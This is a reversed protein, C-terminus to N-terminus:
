NLAAEFADCREAHGKPCITAGTHFTKVYDQGDAHYRVTVGSLTGIGTEVSPVTVGVLLELGIPDNPAITAGAAQFANGGPPWGARVDFLNTESANLREPGYALVDGMTEVAPDGFLVDIGDVSIESAGENTLHQLGFTIPTGAEFADVVIGADDGGGLPGGNTPHQSIQIAVAAATLLVAAGFITAIARRNV